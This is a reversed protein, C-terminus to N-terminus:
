LRAIVEHILMIRACVCVSVYARMLCVVCCL